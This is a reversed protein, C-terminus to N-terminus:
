PHTLDEAATLQRLTGLDDQVIWFNVIKGGNVEHIVIGRTTLQRGTPPVGLYEIAHTARGTFRTAVKSGEAIQDEVEMTLDPFATRLATVWALYGEPGPLGDPPETVFEDAVLEGILAFSGGGVVETLIRRAVRKNEEIGDVSADESPRDLLM